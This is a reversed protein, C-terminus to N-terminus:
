AWAWPAAPPPSGAATPMSPLTAGRTSSCSITAWHAARGQPTCRGTPSPWSTRARTRRWIWATTSSIGGRSPTSGGASLPASPGGSPPPTPLAWTASSWAPTTRCPPCPTSMPFPRQPPPTTRRRPRQRRLPPPSRSERRSRRRPSPPPRATWTWWSRRWPSRRRRRCASRRTACFGHGPTWPHRQGAPPPARRRWRPAPASSPPTPTRSPTASRRRAASRGDWPPM